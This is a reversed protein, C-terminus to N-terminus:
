GRGQFSYDLPFRFEFQVARIIENYLYSNDKKNLKGEVKEHSGMNYHRLKM